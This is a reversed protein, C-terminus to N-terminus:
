RESDASWALSQSSSPNSHNIPSSLALETNAHSRLAGPAFGTAIIALM